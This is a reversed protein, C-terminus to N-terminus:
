GIFPTPTVFDRKPLCSNNHSCIKTNRDIVTRRIEQRHLLGARHQPEATALRVLESALEEGGAARTPHRDEPQASLQTYGAGQKLLPDAARECPRDWRSM